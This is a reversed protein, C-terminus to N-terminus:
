PERLLSSKKVQVQGAQNQLLFLDGDAPTVTQPTTGGKGDPLQFQLPTTRCGTHTRRFRPPLEYGYRGLQYTVKTQTENRVQFEYAKSKPLGFLQVAFFFGTTTSHAVAVATDTVDADLMNQRHGPSNKWGTVFGAALSKVTFGSSNFQYAINETVLCYEYKHEAVREVPQRGDAAHGYRSTTAMYDAFQRAAKTLQPQEKVPALKHQQRLKNTQGIIARAVQKLDPPEAVKPGAAAPRTLVKTDDGSGTQPQGCLLLLAAACSPLVSGTRAPM